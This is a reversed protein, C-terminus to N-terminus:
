QNLITKIINTANTIVLHFHSIDEPFKALNLYELLVSRTILLHVIISFLKWVIYINTLVLRNIHCMHEIIENNNHNLIIYTSQGFFEGCIKLQMNNLVSMSSKNTLPLTLVLLVFILVWKKYIKVNIIIWM